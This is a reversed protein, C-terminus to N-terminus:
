ITFRKNHRFFDIIEAKVRSKMYTKFEIGFSDDYENAADVLGLYACSVYDDLDCLANHTRAINLAMNKAYPMHNLITQERQQSTLKCMM